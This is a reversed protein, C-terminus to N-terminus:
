SCPRKGVAVMAAIQNTKVDLRHITNMPGNAVWVADETLVQWDPTGGTDFVALPKISAIDRKVGPTSVGPRPPGKPGKKKTTEAAGPQASDTQQAQVLMGLPIAALILCGTAVRLFSVRHM